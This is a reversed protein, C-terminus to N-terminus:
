DDYIELSTILVEHAVRFEYSGDPLYKQYQRSRLEGIAKVQTDISLKSSIRALSNWLICPIYNDITAKDLSNKIVIQNSCDGNSFKNLSYVKAISGELILQNYVSDDVVEPIDFYTFVYLVLHNSGNSHFSKSRVNGVLQIQENNRYPCSSTKFQLNIISEKGNSNIVLLNAKSYSVGKFTHSYRIDTIIGSLYINNQM